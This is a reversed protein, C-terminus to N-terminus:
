ENIKELIESFSEKVFYYKGGVMGIHTDPTRDAKKIVQINSVNIMCPVLRQDSYVETLSIFKHM